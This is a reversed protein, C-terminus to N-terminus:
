HNRHIQLISRTQTVAGERNLSHISRRYREVRVERGAGISNSSVDLGIGPKVAQGVCNMSGIRVALRKERRVQEQPVDRHGRKRIRELIVQEKNPTLISVE